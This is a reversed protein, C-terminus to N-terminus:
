GHQLLLSLLKLSIGLAHSIIRRTAEHIMSSTAVTWRHSLAPMREGVLPARSAWPTAAPPPSTSSGAGGSANIFITRQPKVLHKRFGWIQHVFHGSLLVTGTCVWQREARHQQPVGVTENQKTTNPNRIQNMTSRLKYCTCQLSQVLPKGPLSFQQRSLHSTGPCLCLDLNDKSQLQFFRSRYCDM